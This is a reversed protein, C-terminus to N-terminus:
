RRHSICGSRARAVEMDMLIQEPTKQPIDETLKTTHVPEMKKRLEKRCVGAGDTAPKLKYAVAKYVENFDVKWKDCTTRITEIQTDRTKGKGLVLRLFGVASGLRYDYNNM